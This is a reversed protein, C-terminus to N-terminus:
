TLRTSGGNTLAPLVEYQKAWRIRKQQNNKPPEVRL